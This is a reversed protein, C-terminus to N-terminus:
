LLSPSCSGIEYLTGDQLTQYQIASIIFRLMEASLYTALLIDCNFLGGTIFFPM